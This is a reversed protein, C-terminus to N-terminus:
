LGKKPASIGCPETGEMSEVKSYGSEPSKHDSDCDQNYGDSNDNGSGGRARNLGSIKGYSM